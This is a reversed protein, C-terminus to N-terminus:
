LLGYVNPNGTVYITFNIIIITTINIAQILNHLYSSYHRINDKISVLLSMIYDEGFIVLTIIGDVSVTYVIYNCKYLGLM